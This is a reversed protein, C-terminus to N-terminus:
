KMSFLELGTIFAAWCQFALTDYNSPIFLWLVALGIFLPLFSNLAFTPTAEPEDPIPEVPEEEVPAEYNAHYKLEYQKKSQQALFTISFLVNSVDM